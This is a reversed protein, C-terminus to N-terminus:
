QCGLLRIAAGIEQRPALFFDASSHKALRDSHVIFPCAEHFKTRSVFTLSFTSPAVTGLGYIEALAALTTRRERKLIGGLEQYLAEQEKALDAKVAENLGAPFTTRDEHNPEGQWVRELYHLILHVCEPPCPMTQLAEASAQRIPMADHPQILKALAIAIHEDRRSALARIAEEQVDPWALPTHGFAINLLMQTSRTGTFTGLEKAARAAAPTGQFAGSFGAAEAYLREIRQGRYWYLGYVGASAVALITIAVRKVSM